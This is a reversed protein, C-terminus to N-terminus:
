AFSDVFPELLKKNTHLISLQHFRRPSMRTRRLTQINTAYLFQRESAASTAQVTLFRPACLALIFYNKENQAWWELLTVSGQRAGQEMYKKMERKVAQEM